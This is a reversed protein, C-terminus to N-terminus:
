ANVEGKYGIATDSVASCPWTLPALKEQWDFEAVDIYM